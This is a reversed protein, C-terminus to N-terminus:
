PADMFSKVIDRQNQYHSNLDPHGYPRVCPEDLRYFAIQAIKDGQTLVIPKDSLNTIELVLQGKFGPDVFGATHVILGRRAWSSKGELRGVLDTPMAILEYTSALIFEKPELTYRLSQDKILGLQLDYSAPQVQAIDYPQILGVECEKLITQDSLIM